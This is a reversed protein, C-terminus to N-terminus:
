QSNAVNLQDITDVAFWKDPYVHSSYLLKKEILNKWVIYFDDCPEMLQNIKAPNLVQIGSCYADSQKQRNLETVVYNDHFIFDGELGAIPKVPIVM